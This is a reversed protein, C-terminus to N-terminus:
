LNGGYLSLKAFVRGKKTERGTGDYRMRGQGRCSIVCGEAPRYSPDTILRGDAFVKGGAILASAQTRPLHFGLALLADLRASAVSGTVPTLTPGLSVAEEPDCPEAIVTTHRVRVLEQMVFPAISDRCLLVADKERVIIDGLLSREIGLGLLTGLFDRHTLPDSFRPNVPRISLRAIPFIDAEEGEGSVYSFADPIFAIMQREANAYGGCSATRIFSLERRLSHFINLENLGLFDSFCIIDRDYARRALDTLRRGCLEEEKTM